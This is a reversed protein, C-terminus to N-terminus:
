PFVFNKPDSTYMCKATQFSAECVDKYKDPVKRCENLSKKVPAKMEDPFMLDIQRSAADYNLKGNKMMQAMQLICAIYCKVNRSEPFDGKSIDKIEDNTVNNKPQCVNKMVIGTKKLQAASMGYCSCMLFFIGFIGLLVKMKITIEIHIIIPTYFSIIFIEPNSKYMCQATHFSSECLDKYKESVDKCETLVKKAPEKMSDPMLMEIQKLASEYNLKGNKVSQAMTFICAIYCKVNKDDIFEGNKINDVQENTVKNKPQCVNRMLKGAQKLQSKTMAESVSSFILILVLMTYAYFKLM